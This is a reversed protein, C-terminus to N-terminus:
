EFGNSFVEPVLNLSEDFCPSIESTSGTNLDTAIATLYAPGGSGSITSTIGLHGSGDSTDQM